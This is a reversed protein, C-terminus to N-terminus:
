GNIFYMQAPLNLPEFAKDLQRARRLLIFASLGIVGGVSLLVFGAIPVALILFTTTDDYNGTETIFLPIGICILGLPVIAVLISLRFLLHRFYTAGWAKLIKNTM